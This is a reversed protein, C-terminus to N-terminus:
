LVNDQSNYLWDGVSYLSILYIFVNIAWLYPSTVVGKFTAPTIAALLVAFVFTVVFTMFMPLTLLICLRVPKPIKNM